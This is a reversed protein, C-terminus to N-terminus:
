ATERIKKARIKDDLSNIVETNKEVVHTMHEILQILQTRENTREAQIKEVRIEWVQERKYFYYVAMALLLVAFGQNAIVSWINEM